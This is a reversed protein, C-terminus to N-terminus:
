RWNVNVWPLFDFKEPSRWGNFTVIKADAPLHDGSPWERKRFVYVGSERGCKWTAAGPLKHHYWGQDDPFLYFKIKSAADLSFDSWLESHAGYRFMMLAGGFPCPNTSNGGRLIVFDEPRDFLPDLNSVIVTDLDILVLRDGSKMGIKDQWKRDFMRLRAFCGEIKTLHEDEPEPEAVIFRHEQKLHKAVGRRLKEVYEPSYKNGWFWTCVILAM